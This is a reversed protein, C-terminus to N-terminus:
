ITYHTETEHCCLSEDGILIQELSLEGHENLCILDVFSGDMLEEQPEIGVASDGM